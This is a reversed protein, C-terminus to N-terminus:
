ACSSVLETYRHDRVTRGVSGRSIVQALEREVDTATQTLTGRDNGDRGDGISPRHDDCRDVLTTALPPERRTVQNADRRLCKAAAAPSTVVYRLTAAGIRCRDVVGQERYAM